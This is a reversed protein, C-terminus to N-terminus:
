FIKVVRYKTSYIGGSGVVDTGQGLKVTQFRNQELENEVSNKKDGVFKIIWLDSTEWTSASINKGWSM